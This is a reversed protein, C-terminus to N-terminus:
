PLAGELKSARHSNPAASFTQEDFTLATLGVIVKKKTLKRPPVLVVLLSQPKQQSLKMKYLLTKCLLVTQFVM